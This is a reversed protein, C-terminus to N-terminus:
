QKVPANVFYAKDGLLLVGRLHQIPKTLQNSKKLVMAFGSKSSQVKQPAANEIQSEELPFFFAEKIPRGVVGNLYFSDKRDTAQFKWGTPTPRPLRERTADFTSKVTTNVSPTQSVVPLSLSLKAKGPICVDQCVILKLDANLNATPPKLSANAQMPVTLLVEDEYGFDVASFASLTKPYPWLIEGARLGSPLAWTVRPPQGADGPNIWYIHWGKELQFKLGIKFNHGPQISSHEAVLEV